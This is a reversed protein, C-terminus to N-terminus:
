PATITVRRNQQRGTDTTNAAVPDAQGRAAVTIPPAAAGLRARLAAAFTRARQAALTGNTPQRGVTDTYGTVTVGTPRASRIRQAAAALVLRSQADLDTSGTAFLVTGAQGTAAAAGAAPAATVTGGGVLPAPGPASTTPTM